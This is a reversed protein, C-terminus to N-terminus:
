DKWIVGENLVKQRFTEDTESLDIVDVSYPITSQEIKEKLLSVFTVPLPATSL